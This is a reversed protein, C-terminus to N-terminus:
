AIGSGETPADLPFLDGRPDNGWQVFTDQPLKRHGYAVMQISGFAPLAVPQAWKGLRTLEKETFWDIDGRDHWALTEDSARNTAFDDPNRMYRAVAAAVLRSVPLPATLGSWAPDGYDRAADSADEIADAIMNVESEPLDLEGLRRQVDEPSCLATISM